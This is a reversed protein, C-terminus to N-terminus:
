QSYYVKRIGYREILVRCFNCPYAMGIKHSKLVRVVYLVKGKARRGAKKLAMEEAHYTFKGDASFRRRNYGVSVLKSGDMVFAILTAKRVDKPHEELYQKLPPHM